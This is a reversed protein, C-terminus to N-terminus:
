VLERASDSLPATTHRLPRSLWWAVLPGAIWLTSLLLITAQTATTVFPLATLLGLGVLPCGWLSRYVGVVDSHALSEADSSTMWELRRRGSVHTRWLAVVMAHLALRAEGPLLILTLGLGSIEAIFRQGVGKLHVRWRIQDARRPIALAGAVAPTLLWWAALAACTVGGSGVTLDVLMLTLVAPPVLARRLNDLIKWRSLLGLHNRVRRGTADRVWPMLWPAIQWDGRMWRHRRARDALLSAPQDEVLAVDSVLGARAHCGEILDHSLITDDPFRTSVARDFAVVDYIGKGVFSGQDCLDQWLDASVGSYADIGPDPASLRAFRSRGASTSSIAVKPQLLAHGATVLGDADHRPHVLPHAMTAVLRRASGPPLQTDTDLVIVYRIGQLAGYDGDIISFHQREGRRLLANLHELKGRKREWGMWCGEAPNHRRPRHLLLFPGIGDHGHRQNLAAIARQAGALAEADGPMEANPADGFDTLLAFRLAPDRNALWRLELGDALASGDEPRRLLTPIVVLTRCSEAIGHTFDLRPLRRPTLLRAHFWGLLHVTPQSAAGVTILAAFPALWWSWTSQWTL